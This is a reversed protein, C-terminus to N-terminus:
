NDFPGRQRRARRVALYDIEPIRLVPVSPPLHGKIALALQPLDPLIGLLPALGVRAIPRFDVMADMGRGESAHRDHINLVVAARNDDAVADSIRTRSRSLHGVKVVDVLEFFEM